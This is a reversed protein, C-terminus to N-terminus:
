GSHGFPDLGNITHIEIPAFDLEESSEIVRHAVIEITRAQAVSIIVWLMNREWVSAKDISSPIAKGDPHSHYHGIVENSGDRLDRQLKLRIIPDIEFRKGQDYPAVNKSPVIDIVEWVANEFRGVLLGCCEQPYEEEAARAMKNLDRARFIIM